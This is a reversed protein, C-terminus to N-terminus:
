VWRYSSIENNWSPQYLSMNRLGDGNSLTWVGGSCGADKYLRVSRGSNNWVSTWQDNFAVPECDGASGVPNLEYGEATSYQHRNYGCLSSNTCSGPAALVVPPPATPGASAVSPTVGVFAGILLALTAAIAAMRRM